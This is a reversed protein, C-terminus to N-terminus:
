KLNRLAELQDRKGVALLMQDAGFKFDPEPFM